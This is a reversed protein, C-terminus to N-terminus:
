PTQYPNFGGTYGGYRGQAVPNDAVMGAGQYHVWGCNWTYCYGTWPRYCHQACSPSGGTCNFSEPTPPAPFAVNAQQFQCTLNNVSVCLVFPNQSVNCGVRCTPQVCTQKGCETPLSDPPQQFICNPDLDGTPGHCIVFPETFPKCGAELFASPLEQAVIRPIRVVAQNGFARMIDGELFTSQVRNALKPDGATFVTTQKVWMISGGLTNEDDNLPKSYLIDQEPVEIFDNLAATSYVRVHGRLDSDGIFGRLVVLPETSKPDPRVSKIFTDKRVNKSNTAM